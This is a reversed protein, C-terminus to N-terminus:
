FSNRIWILIKTCIIKVNNRKVHLNKYDSFFIIVAMLIAAWGRGTSILFGAHREIDVGHSSSRNKKEKLLNQWVILTNCKTWKNQKCFNRILIIICSFICRMLQWQLEWMARLALQKEIYM